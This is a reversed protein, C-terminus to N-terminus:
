TSRARAIPLLPSDVIDDANGESLIEMLARQREAVLAPHQSPSQARAPEIRPEISTRPRTAGGPPDNPAGRHPTQRGGTSEKRHRAPTTQRGGTSEEAAATPDPPFMWITSANPRPQCPILARVRRVSEKIATPSFATEDALTERSPWSRGTDRNAHYALTLIVLRDTSKIEPHAKFLEEHCWHIAYFSV